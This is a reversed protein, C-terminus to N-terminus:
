NIRLNEHGTPIGRGTRSRSTHTTARGNMMNAPHIKPLTPTLSATLGPCPPVVPANAEASPQVMRTSNLRLLGVSQHDSCAASGGVWPHTLERVRGYRGIPTCGPQTLTGDDTARCVPDLRLEGGMRM